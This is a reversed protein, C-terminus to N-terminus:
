RRHVSRWAALSSIVGSVLSTFRGCSGLECEFHLFKAWFCGPVSSSVYGSNFWANRGSSFFGFLPCSSGLELPEHMCHGTELTALEPFCSFCRSHVPDVEPDSFVMVFFIHVFWGFAGLLQRLGHIWQRVLYWAWWYGVVGDDLFQIQPVEVAVVGLASAAPLAAHEELM